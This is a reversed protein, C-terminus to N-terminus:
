GFWNLYSSVLFGVVVSCISPPPCAVQQLLTPDQRRGRCTSLSRLYETGPPVSLKGLERLLTACPTALCCLVVCWDQKPM